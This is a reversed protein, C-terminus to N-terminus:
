CIKLYDVHLASAFRLLLKASSSFWGVLKKVAREFSFDSFGIFSLIWYFWLFWHTPSKKFFFLNKQVRNIDFCCYIHKSQCSQVSSTGGRPALQSSVLNNAGFQAARLAAPYTSGMGQASDSNMPPRCNVPIFESAPMAVSTQEIVCWLACKTLLLLTVYMLLMM